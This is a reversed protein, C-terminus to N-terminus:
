IEPQQTGDEEVPGYIKSASTLLQLSSIHGQNFDDWEKNISQSVKKYDSRQHRSLKENEWGM